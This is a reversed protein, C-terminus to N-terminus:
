TCCAACTGLILKYRMFAQASVSTLPLVVLNSRAQCLHRQFYISDPSSLKSAGPLNRLRQVLNRFSRSLILREFGLVTVQLEADMDQDEETLFDDDDFLNSYAGSPQKM